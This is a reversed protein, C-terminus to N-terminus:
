TLKRRLERIRALHYDDHECAFHILDVVRMQTNLRRHLATRGWGDADLRELQVVRETRSARFAALLAAIDHDNYAAERTKRHEMDAPTLESRGAMFDALRLKWLIEVTVLHGVNEQISWGVDDRQTLLDSELDAVAEELRAPAGRFRELVDPYKTVPYDFSFTRESWPWLRM